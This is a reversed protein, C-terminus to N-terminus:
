LTPTDVSLSSFSKYFDLSDLRRDLQVITYYECLDGLYKLEEPPLTFNFVKEPESYIIHRMATLVGLSIRLRVTNDPLRVEPLCDGCLLSGSLPLFYMTVATYQGCHRCAVLDPMYGAMSLLRLEFVAKILAPPRKDTELLYLANLTLRLFEGAPEEAPALQSCLQALYAALALKEVDTRLGFFNRETEASDVQYRDRYKFLVFRSCCLLETGSLLRGRLKKAGRAYATIVGCDETLITLVRDDDRDHERLIVGMTTIQM